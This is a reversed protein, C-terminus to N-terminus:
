CCPSTLSIGALFFRVFDYVCRFCRLGCSELDVYGNHAAMLLTPPDDPPQPLGHEEDSDGNDQVYNNLVSEIFDLFRRWVTTFPPSALIEDDSIGHVASAAMASPTRLIEDDVKVVQAFSAGPLGIRDFVQTAALEVIRCQSVDRGSTELDILLLVLPGSTHVPSYTFPRSHFLCYPSGRRLPGAVLRGNSDAM